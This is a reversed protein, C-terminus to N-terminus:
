SGDFDFAISGLSTTALSMMWPGGLSRSTRTYRRGHHPYRPGVGDSVPQAGPPKSGPTGQSYDGDVIIPYPKPGQLAKAGEDDDNSM